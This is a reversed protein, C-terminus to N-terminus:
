ESFYRKVIEASRKNLGLSLAGRIAQEQADSLSLPHRLNRSVRVLGIALQMAESRIEKNGHSSLDIFAHLAKDIDKHFGMRYIMHLANIFQHHNVDDVRVVDLMFSYAEEFNKMEPVWDPIGAVDLQQLLRESSFSMFKKLIWPASNELHNRKGPREISDKSAAGIPMPSVGSGNSM